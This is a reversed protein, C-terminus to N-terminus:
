VMELQAPPVSGLQFPQEFCVERGRRLFARVRVCWHIKVIMGEYSLPSNPLKVSLRQLQRLEGDDLDSPVFRHFEHVGLDEDGKGETFWLVSAEIAQVENEQVADIQFEIHLDDGPRFVQDRDRITLSVLPEMKKSDLQKQM